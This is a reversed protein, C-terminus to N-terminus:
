QISSFGVGQSVTKWGSCRKMEAGTNGAAHRALKRNFM